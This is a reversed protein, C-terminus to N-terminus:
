NPPLENANPSIGFAHYLMEAYRNAVEVGTSDFDLLLEPFDVRDVHLPGNARTANQRHFLTDAANHYTARILFRSGLVGAAELLQDVLLGFSRFLYITRPILYPNGEGDTNQNFCVASIHGSSTVELHWRSSNERTEDGKLCQVGVYPVAMCTLAYDEAINYRERGRLADVFSESHVEWTDSVEILPIAQLIFGPFEKLYYKLLDKEKRSFAKEIEDRRSYSSLVAQRVEVASMQISSESHRQFYRGRYMHPKLESNPIYCVIASRDNEVVISKILFGPLRPDASDQVIRELASSTDQGSPVGYFQGRSGSHEDPEDYGYILIGGQSNAFATVDKMFESKTERDLPTPGITRKYDLQSGEQIGRDLFEILVLRDLELFEKTSLFL